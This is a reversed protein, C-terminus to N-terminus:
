LYILKPLIISLILAPISGISAISFALPFYPLNSSATLFISGLFSYYYFSFDFKPTVVEDTENSSNFRVMMIVVIFFIFYFGFFAIAKGRPTKSNSKIYKFFSKFKKM